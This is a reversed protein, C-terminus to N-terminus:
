SVTQPPGGDGGGDDDCLKGDSAAGVASDTSAAPAASAAVPVLPALTPEAFVIMQLVTHQQLGLEDVTDTDRVAMGCLVLKQRSVAVGSKAALEM